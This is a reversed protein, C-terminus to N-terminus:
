SLRRSKKRKRGGKEGERGGVERASEVDKGPIRLVARSQLNGARVEVLRPLSTRRIQVELLDGGGEEDESLARTPLPSPGAEIPARPPGRM